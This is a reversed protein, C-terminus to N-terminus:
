PRVGAQRAFEKAVLAVYAVARRVGVEYHGLPPTTDLKSPRAKAGNFVHRVFTSTSALRADVTDPLQGTYSYYPSHERADSAAVRAVDTASKGQWFATAAEATERETLTKYVQMGTHTVVTACRELRTRPSDRLTTAQALVPGRDKEQYSLAGDAIVENVFDLAARSVREPAGATHRHLMQSVTVGATLAGLHLAQEPTARVLDATTDADGAADEVLSTGLHHLYEYGPLPERVGVGLDLHTRVNAAGVVNLRMVTIRAGEVQTINELVNEPVVHSPHLLPWEALRLTGAEAM